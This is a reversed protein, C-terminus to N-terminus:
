LDTKKLTFPSLQQKWFTQPFPSDIGVNPIEEFMLRTNFIIDWIILNNGFNTNGEEIIRSHHIRHLDPTSFIYNLFGTKFNYNTHKILNNVATFVTCLIILSPSAGVLVLPLTACCYTLITSIPHNRGSSFMHLRESSHHLAHFRWFFFSKHSIRHLWYYNFDSILIALIFQFVIPINNPWLTAIAYYSFQAVLFYSLSLIFICTFHSVATSTTAHFIDLMADPKWHNWAMKYPYIAQLIILIIAAISTILALILLSNGFFAIHQLINAFILAGFLIAPYSVYPLIKSFLM